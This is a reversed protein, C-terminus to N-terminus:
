ARKERTVGTYQATGGAALSHFQHLRPPEFEQGGGQLPPARGVSSRGGTQTASRDSTLPSIWGGRGAAREGAEESKGQGQGSKLFRKRRRATLVDPQDEAYILEFPGTQRTYRTKGRSHEALRREIDNTSGTYLRGNKRSRLVYVIWQEAM